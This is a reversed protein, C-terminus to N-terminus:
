AFAIDYSNSGFSVDIRGLGPTVGACSPGCCSVWRKLHIVENPDAYRVLSDPVKEIILDIKAMLGVEIAMGASFWESGFLPRMDYKAMFEKCVREFALAVDRSPTLFAMAVQFVNGVDEFWYSPDSCEYKGGTLQRCIHHHAEHVEGSGAHSTFRKGLDSTIGFKIVSDMNHLHRPMEMVYFWCPGDTEM